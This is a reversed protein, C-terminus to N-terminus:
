STSFGVGCLNSCHCHCIHMFIWSSNSVTRLALFTIIHSRARSMLVTSHQSLQSLNRRRTKTGSTVSKILLLSTSNVDTVTIVHPRNTDYTYPSILWCTM